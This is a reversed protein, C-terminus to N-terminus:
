NLGIVSGNNLEQFPQKKKLVLAKKLEKMNWTIAKIDFDIQEPTVGYEDYTLTEQIEKALAKAKLGFEILTQIAFSPMIEAIETAILETRLVNLAQM